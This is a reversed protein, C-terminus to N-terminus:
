RILHILYIRSVSHVFDAESFDWSLLVGVAAAGSSSLSVLDLSWVSKCMSISDSPVQDSHIEVLVLLKHHTYPKNDTSGSLVEKHPLSQFLWSVHMGMYLAWFIPDFLFNAINNYHSLSAIHALVAM